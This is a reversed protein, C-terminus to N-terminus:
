WAGQLVFGSWYFPHAWRARARTAQQAARLAAAPPTGAFLAGYFHQMLGATAEDDVRWLSAVVGRAGSAFFGRAMSLLGEGGAPQGVATECASLVVLDAGLTLRHLDRLRLFGDQAEGNVDVLSLVIGSLDPHINDRTAHTAFHVFRFGGLTDGTALNRSADFDLAKLAEGPPALAVIREAEDRSFPLRSLRRAPPAPSRPGASSRKVRVDSRDFVPDAFVAVARPAPARAQLERRLLAVMTASPLM